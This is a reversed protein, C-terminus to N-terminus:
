YLILSISGLAFCYLAFYILKGKKVIQIMWSCAILGSLFASIFGILLAQNSIGSSLTPNQTLDMLKLLSAGVIPILVMLFSFRTALEKDVGMLLATAITAGSRSIGPVIAITQAIGIILAKPTSIDGSNPKAFHTLALLMGTVLLMLAVLVINGGFLVSIHDEFFYGVLGVPIASLLIKFMFDTSPNNQFKFLDSLITLLDKRFVVITSLATASHIVLSFKLNESTNTGLIYTGIEIHGSSSVPLFETLGQVIGLIIAEWIDM